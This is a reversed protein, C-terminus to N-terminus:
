PGVVEYLQATRNMWTTDVALRLAKSRRMARALADCGDDYLGCNITVYNVGRRRLADVGQEDPFLRMDTYFQAYSDPIFGSYGNVMRSGHWVSFYMFPLNWVENDQLPLEAIVVNPTYQLTDYIPPPTKWVPQLTLSPWADIMVCAVLAVLAAHQYRRSSRWRLVRRVGFGALIALTLGVIAAFRSPARLEHIPGPLVYLLPYVIGNLGLSGDFAVLLGAAYVLRMAGLPPAFAIAALLV